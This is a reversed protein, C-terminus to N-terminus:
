QPYGRLLRVNLNLRARSPNAFRARVLIVENPELSAEDLTMYPAGNFSGDAGVLTVGAPLGEFVAHLPASLAVSGRNQVLLLAEYFNTFPIPFVVLVVIRTSATVDDPPIALYGVVADHDSIRAPSATDNRAVEPQDSNGRTVEVGRVFSAAAANVVVHDLVQATGDFVFSYRESGSLGHILNTLDPTVLDNGPVVVQDAPAPQGAVTGMVDVYGDNFEFANFDGVLVIREAPNAAQRTQVFDALFEAQAVRKARVRAGETGVGSPTEDGVGILSRLHNVIVTVPFARGDAYNVTAEVVLSPRDNLTEPQGTNPNIYTATPGVQTVAGVVVRPTAGQVPETKVLVGIDIGGPDNGELLYPVYAPSAGGIMADANVRDALRTLTALNELEIVGLIDPTGLQERIFRSAKGLRTDFAAATLVPEGIAPDNVDDFFRQLNASAVTLEGPTRARVARTGSGPTISGTREADPLLTYTRFAYDLPGVLETVVAGASVDITAAGLQGDSDVRIREPNGDFRPVNPPAGAPLPDLVAIGPERFPRAVSTLVGYFVGNSTATANPESIGGLTPAVVTLSPVRVRMGEFRELNDFSTTPDIDATTLTIADPLPEGSSLVQVAPSTLETLPPQNPDANPVFEAIQGDVQVLDGRAVTPAAGSFVLLGESTAPDGDVLTDPTQIFFGNSKLATVVGTTRVIEALLPSSAGSGQIEHIAAFTPPPPPDGATVRIDDVGVWEDNGIANTTIIRIHLLAQGATEPPLSASVPTDLTALSPGSTADAVFAAPVNIFPGSGGIRYQLAVPQVANDISADLDRLLYSVRVGPVGTTDLAILVYPADATGSGNLAVTPNALSDFEAVGGNALTDPNTRNALVDIDNAITSEGVVTQPDVGTSSTLGQGLFGLVGPVGSWDDDVAILATNTWTQEFTLLQPTSDARLLACALFCFSLSTLWREIV